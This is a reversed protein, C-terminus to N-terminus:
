QDGYFVGESNCAQFCFVVVEAGADAFVSQHEGAGCHLAYHSLNLAHSCALRADANIAFSASALFQYGACQMFLAMAGATGEHRDIARGNWRFKDLAFQEAM